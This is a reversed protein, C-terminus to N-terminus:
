GEKIPFFITGYLTSSSVLFPVSRVCAFECFISTLLSDRSM